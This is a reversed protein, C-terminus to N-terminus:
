WALELTNLVRAGNSEVIVVNEIRAGYRGKFYVAPELTLVMGAKLEDSSLPSLVPAEHVDIGVGHGLGHVFYDKLGARELEKRAKADVESASVGERIADLAEYYASILAELLPRVERENHALVVTRTVDTSYLNFTGGVDLVIHASDRLSREPITPPHPYATLEGAAVIPDFALSELGELYLLKILEGKISGLTINQKSAIASELEEVLKKLARETRITAEKIYEMEHSTKVSRLARLTNTIDVVKDSLNASGVVKLFLEMPAYSLDAGVRPSSDLIGFAIEELNREDVSSFQEKSLSKVLRSYAVVRASVKLQKQARWFELPPVYLTITSSDLDYVLFGSGKYGTLYAINSEGFIVAKRIRLSQLENEFRKLIHACSV